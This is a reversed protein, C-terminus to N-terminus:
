APPMAQVAQVVACAALLAHAYQMVARVNDRTPPRQTAEGIPAGALIMVSQALSLLDDDDDNQM